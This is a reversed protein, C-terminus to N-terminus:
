YTPQATAGVVKENLDVKAVATLGHLNGWGVIFM